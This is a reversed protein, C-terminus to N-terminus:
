VIHFVIAQENELMLSMHAIFWLFLFLRVMNWNGPSVQTAHSKKLLYKVLHFQNESLEKTLNKMLLTLGNDDVFNVDVGADMLLDGIEINHM